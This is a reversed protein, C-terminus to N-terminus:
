KLYGLCTKRLIKLYSDGGLNTLIYDTSNIQFNTPALPNSGGVVQVGHLHGSLMLKNFIFFLCIRIGGLFQRLKPLKPL